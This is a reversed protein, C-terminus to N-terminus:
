TRWELSCPEDNWVALDTM